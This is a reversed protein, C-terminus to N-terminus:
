FFLFSFFFRRKALLSNVFFFVVVIIIVVVVVCEFIQPRALFFEEWTTRFRHAAYHVCLSLSLSLFLNISIRICQYLFIYSSVPDSESPYICVCQSLYISLYISLYLSVSDIYIYIYLSLFIGFVSFLNISVCKSIALWSSLNSCASISLYIPLYILFCQSLNNFVSSSWTLWVAGCTCHLLFVIFFSISLYISIRSIECM